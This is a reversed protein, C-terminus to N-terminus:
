RIKQRGGRDAVAIDVVPEIPPNAPAVAAEAPPVPKAPETDVEAKPTEIEPSQETM